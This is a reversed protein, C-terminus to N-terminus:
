FRCAADILMFSQRGKKEQTEKFASLPAGLALFKEKLDAGIEFSDFGIAPGLAAKIKRAKCEKMM